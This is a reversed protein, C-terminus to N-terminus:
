IWKWQNGHHTRVDFEKWRQSTDLFSRLATMTNHSAYHHHISSVSSSPITITIINKADGKGFSYQVKDNNNGTTQESKGTTIKKESGQLIVFTYAVLCDQVTEQRHQFTTTSTSSRGAPVYIDSLPCVRGSITTTTTTTTAKPSSSRIRDREMIIYPNDEVFPRDQLSWVYQKSLHHQRFINRIQRGEETTNSLIGLLLYPFTHNPIRISDDHEDIPQQQQQQPLFAESWSAYRDWSDYSLQPEVWFWMLISFVALLGVLYQYMCLSRLFTMRRRNRRQNSLLPTM